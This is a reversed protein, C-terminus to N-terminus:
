WRPLKGGRGALLRDNFMVYGCLNDTEEPDTGSDCPLEAKLVRSVWRACWTSATSESSIVRSYEGIFMTNRTISSKYYFKNNMAIKLMLRHNEAINM